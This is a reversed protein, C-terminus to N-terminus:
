RISYFPPASITQIFSFPYSEFACRLNRHNAQFPISHMVWAIPPNFAVLTSLFAHPVRLVQALRRSVFPISCHIFSKISLLAQTMFKLREHYCPSPSCFPFPFPPSPLLTSGIAEVIQMFPAHPSNWFYARERGLM